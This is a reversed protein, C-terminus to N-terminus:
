EIGYRAAFNWCHDDRKWLKLPVVLESPCMILASDVDEKKRWKSRGTKVRLWERVQKHEAMWRRIAHFWEDPEPQVVIPMADISPWDGDIRAMGLLLPIVPSIWGNLPIWFKHHEKERVALFTLADPPESFNAMIRRGVQDPNWEQGWTGHPLDSFIRDYKSTDASM